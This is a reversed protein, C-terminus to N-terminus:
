DLSDDLGQETWTLTGWQGPELLAEGPVDALLGTAKNHWYLRQSTQGPTGRLLGFDVKVSTGDEPELGIASLPISFEFLKQDFGPNKFYADRLEIHASVDQVDDFEVTRWPSAFPVAKGPAAARQRYLMALPKKGVQTVLLRLDGVAAERRKPDAQPDVSLMLDLAAGTKFLMTPNDGANDFPKETHKTVYFVHLRDGCVALAAKTSRDSKGFEFKEIVAFDPNPWTKLDASTIREEDQIVGKVQAAAPANKAALAQQYELARQLEKEGVTVTQKALRRVTELGELRSVGIFEGGVCLYIAGDNAQVISPSFNEQGNTYPMLDDGPELTAPWGGATRYDRMVTALYLGDTTGLHMCGMNANQAWVEGAEGAAPRVLPGLIRIAGTLDGNFRPPVTSHSGHVGWNESPYTWLLKGDKYGCIPSAFTVVRGDRALLAQGADDARVVTKGGFSTTSTPPEFLRTRKNLDWIPAGAATFGTPKIIWGLSTVLTFDPQLTYGGIDPAKPANPPRKPDVQAGEAVPDPQLWTVENPQAKADGNLDTWSFAPGGGGYQAAFNVSAPLSEKFEPTDLVSRWAKPQAVVAVPRARAGDQLWLGFDKAPGQVHTHYANSLFRKGGVDFAWQPGRQSLRLQEDGPVEVRYLINKLTGTGAQWDLAFELTSCRDWPRGHAYIVSKADPTLMGGGGYNPPGYYARIFTGDTKWRSIRTPSVSSEAVWLEGTDTIAMQQPTSMRQEDYEGLKVGGAKGITRLFKGDAAFVKVQDVAGLDAVYINGATDLALQSAHVLGPAAPELGESILTQAEPLKGDRLTAAADPYKLIRTGSRVFLNGGADFALGQPRDLSLRAIEKGLAARQKSKLDPEAADLGVVVLQNDYPASFVLTGNFVALGGVSFLNDPTATGLRIDKEVIPQDRFSREGSGKFFAMIKATRLKGELNKKDSKKNGKPAKSEGDKLEAQDDEALSGKTISYAYAQGVPEPGVDRALYMGGGFVGGAWVQGHLKRGDLTTWMFADGWESGAASFMLQPEPAAPSGQPLFLVGQPDNHDSLWRGPRLETQSDRISWPPSGPSYVPIQYILKLGDHVLGRVMYSGPDVLSGPQKHFHVDPGTFADWFVKHPGAEFPTDAILNRVRRGAADEVVLTVRGPKDLTFTIPVPPRPEEAPSAASLLSIAGVVVLIYRSM